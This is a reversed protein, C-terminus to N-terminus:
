LAVCESLALVYRAIPRINRVLARPDNVRVERLRAREAPDGCPARLHRHDHMREVSV